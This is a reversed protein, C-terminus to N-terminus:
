EAGEIALHGRRHLTRCPGCLDDTLIDALLHTDKPIGKRTARPTIM